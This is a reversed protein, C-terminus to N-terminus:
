PLALFSRLLTMFRAPAEIMPWHGAGDITDVPFGFADAFRADVYPDAAGWFTRGVVSPPLARVRRQWIGLVERDLARYFRLVESKMRPSIAVYADRIRQEPLGSGRRMQWRFLPYNLAAMGLEGLGPTRCVNAWFHWRYAACLPASMVVLRAVRDPYRVAFPVAFYVGADHSIITVPESLDLGALLRAVWAGNSEMTYAHSPGVALGSMPLAPVICRFGDLRDVVDNWVQPGDPIGHLFLM